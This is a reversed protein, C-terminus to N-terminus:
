ARGLRAATRRLMSTVVLPHALKVPAFYVHGRWGHLRVATVVRVLRREVDVGVACAFDLHRDPTVILAEEGVVRQVAFATARDGRPVGILPALAQRVLFAARVWVPTSPITFLESAWIAPDVPARRPLPVAILDLHDPAAIEDFVLSNFVPGTSAM